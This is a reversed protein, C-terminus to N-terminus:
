CFALWSGANKIGGAKKGRGILPYLRSSFSGALDAVPLMQQNDSPECFSGVAREWVGGGRWWRGACPFM